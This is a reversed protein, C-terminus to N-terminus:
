AEEKAYDAFGSFLLYVTTAGADQLGIAADQYYKARGFRAKLTKTYEMGAQAANSADILCELANKGKLASEHLALVAPELADIMTKDGVRAGGREKIKNLSAMLIGAFDQMSIKEQKYNGTAIGSIFITGFLVGAAGGVSDLMANGATAFVDEITFPEKMGALATVIEQFGLAMSTGHDGDGIKNDIETLYDESSVIRKGAYSLMCRFQESSLYPSSFSM